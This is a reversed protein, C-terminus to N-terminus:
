DVKRYVEVLKFGPEQEGKGVVPGRITMRDGTIRMQFRVTQGVLRPVVHYAITESYEEGHLTFTGGGFREQIAGKKDNTHGVFLFHGKSYIKLLGGSYEGPLEGQPWKASILEWSGELPSKSPESAFAVSQLAAFLVAICLTKM